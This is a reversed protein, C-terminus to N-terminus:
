KIGWVLFANGYEEDCLWPNKIGESKRSKFIENFFQVLKLEADDNMLSFPFEISHSIMPLSYIGSANINKLGQNKLENVYIKSNYSTRYVDEKSTQTNEEPHYTKLIQNIWGFEKQVKNHFQPVVYGFWIGGKNLVRLQESIPKSIDEFHELLGVSFVIDFSNDEYPLNLANGVDFIANLNNKSFINKAIDLVGKSSDLLTTKYGNQSFYASLSGRGAGVELTKNGKNFNKTGDIISKLTLWHNYFAFQIQNKPNGDTWHNYNTEKRQKWNNDFSIEDGKM